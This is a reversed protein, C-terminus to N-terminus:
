SHSICTFPVVVAGRTLDGIEDVTHPSPSRVVVPTSGDTRSCDTRSHLLSREVVPTCCDTRSGDTRSHLLHLPPLLSDELVARILHLSVSLRGDM